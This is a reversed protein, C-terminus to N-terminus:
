EMGGLCENAVQELNLEHDQCSAHALKMFVDIFELLKRLCKNMASEICREKEASEIASQCFVQALAFLSWVCPSLLKTQALSRRDDRKVRRLQLFLHLSRLASRPLIPLKLSGLRHHQGVFCSTSLANALLM